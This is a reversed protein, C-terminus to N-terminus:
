LPEVMGLKKLQATARRRVGADHSSRITAILAEVDSDAPRAEEGARQLSALLEEQGFWRMLTCRGRAAQLQGWLTGAFWVAIQVPIFLLAGYDLGYALGFGLPVATRMGALLLAQRGHWRVFPHEKNLAPILLFLHWLASAPVAILITVREAVYWNCSRWMGRCVVHYGIDQALFFWLSPLTLLPSLWLWWYWNRAKQVKMWTNGQSSPMDEARQGQQAQRQRLEGDSVAYGEEVPSHDEQTSPACQAYRVIAEAITEDSLPLDRMEPSVKRKRRYAVMETAREPSLAAIEAKSVRPNVFAKYLDADTPQWNDM